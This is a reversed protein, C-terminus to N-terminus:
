FPFDSDAPAGATELAPAAATAEDAAAEDKNKYESVAVSMYKENNKTTKTWGALRLKQKGERDLDLSGTFDPQGENEKRDNAFLAGNYFNTTGDVTRDIFTVKIFPKGANSTTRIGTIQVKDMGDKDSGNGNYDAKVKEDKSKNFQVKDNKNSFISANFARKTAISM